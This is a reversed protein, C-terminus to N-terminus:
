ISQVAHTAATYSSLKKSKSILMPRYLIDVDMNPLCPRMVETSILQISQNVLLYQESEKGM